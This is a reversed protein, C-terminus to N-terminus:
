LADHPYLLRKLPALVRRMLLTPWDKKMFAFTADQATLV